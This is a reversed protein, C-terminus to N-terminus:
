KAVVSKVKVHVAQAHFPQTAGGFANMSAVTKGAYMTPIQLGPENPIPRADPCASGKEGVGCNNIARCNDDQNVYEVKGGGIVDFTAEYGISYTEHAENGSNQPFSNLGYSELKMGDPKYVHIMYSNYTSPIPEGGVYWTDSGKVDNEGATSDGARRMGNRYYKAEVIGNVTVTVAYTKGMEGGVTFEEKIQVGGSPCNGGPTPYCDFNLKDVCPTLFWSDKLAFGFTNVTGTVTEVLDAPAGGGGGTGAAGGGAGATGGGAGATGAGSGGAGTSGATSMGGSSTGAMSSSGSTSPTGATTATGASAGATGGGSSTGGGAPIPEEEISCASAVLLSTLSLAFSLNLLTRKM